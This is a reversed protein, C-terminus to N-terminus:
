SKLGTGFGATTIAGKKTLSVVAQLVLEGPAVAPTYLVRSRVWRSISVAALERNRSGVTSNGLAFRVGVPKTPNAGGRQHAVRQVMLRIVQTAGGILAM